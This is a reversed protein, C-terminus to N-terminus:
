APQSDPLYLVFEPTDPLNSAYVIPDTTFVPPSQPSSQQVSYLLIDGTGVTGTGNQFAVYVNGSSDFSIGGISTDNLTSPIALVAQFILAATPPTSLAAWYLKSGASVYLGGNQLALHTPNAPLAPSAGLYSGDTLSYLGILASPEDCVFLVGQFVAIDRVSNQVKNDKIHVSLGGNDSSVNTASVKVDPLNGVQSAVYAGDLYVCNPSCLSNLYASQAGTGINCTQFNSAVAGRAVVNTDQNSIYCYLPDGANFVLSFPHAISTEFKDHKSFSASAFQSVYNFLYNNPAAQPEFCLIQSIEKKSDVVYLYSGLWVLGRLEALDKEKIGVLAASTKLQNPGDYVYVNNVPEKKAADDAAPKGGHFTVLLM